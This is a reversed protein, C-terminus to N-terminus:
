TSAAGAPRLSSSLQNEVVIQDQAAVTRVACELYVQELACRRRAGLQCRFSTASTRSAAIGRSGRRIPPCAITLADKGYSNEAEHPYGLILDNAANWQEVANLGEYGM